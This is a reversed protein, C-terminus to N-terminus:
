QRFYEMVVDEVARLEPQAKLLRAVDRTADPRKIGMEVLLEVALRKLEDDTSPLRATATEELAAFGAM